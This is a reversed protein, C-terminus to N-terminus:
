SGEYRLWLLADYRVLSVAQVEASRRPRDAPHEALELHDAAVADLTGAVEPVDASALRVYVRRRALARLVPRLGLRREGATIPAGPRGM